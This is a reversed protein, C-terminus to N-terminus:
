VDRNLIEIVKRYKLEALNYGSKILCQQRRTRCKIAEYFPKSLGARADGGSGAMAMQRSRSLRLRSFFFSEISM